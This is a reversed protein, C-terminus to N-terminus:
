FSVFLFVIILIIGQMVVCVQWTPTLNHSYCQGCISRSWISQVIHSMRFSSVDMFHSSYSCLLEAANTIGQITELNWELSTLASFFSIWCIILTCRTLSHTTTSIHRYILLRTSQEASPVQATSEASDRVSSSESTSAVRISRWQQGDWLAGM